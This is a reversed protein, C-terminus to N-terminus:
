ELGESSKAIFRIRDTVGKVFCCQQAFYLLSNPRGHKRTIISNRKRPWVMCKGTRHMEHSSSFLLLVYELKGFSTEFLVNLVFPLAELM